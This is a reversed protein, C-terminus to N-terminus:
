TINDLPRTTDSKYPALGWSADSVSRQHSVLLYNVAEGGGGERESSDTLYAMIQRHMHESDAQMPPLFPM